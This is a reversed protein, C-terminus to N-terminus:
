NQSIIERRVCVCISTRALNKTYIKPWIWKYCSPTREKHYFQNKRIWKATCVESFRHSLKFSKIIQEGANSQISNCELKNTCAISIWLDMRITTTVSFITMASIRFVKLINIIFHKCKIQEIKNFVLWISFQM